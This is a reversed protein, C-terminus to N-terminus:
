WSVSTMPGSDELVPDPIRLTFAPENAFVFTYGTYDNQTANAHGNPALVSTAM